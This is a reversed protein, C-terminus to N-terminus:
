LLVDTEPELEVGPEVDVEPAAFQSRLPARPPPASKFALPEELPASEPDAVELPEFELPDFV